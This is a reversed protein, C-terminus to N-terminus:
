LEERENEHHSSVISLNGNRCRLEDIFPKESEGNKLELLYTLEFLSGMNTTKVKNLQCSSTYKNFLDEFISTYDLNEPITIRVTRELQRRGGFGTLTMVIIAAGALILFLAAILIYGTGVALGIAMALFICVIEKASGPLSRFRVLSFAGAVAVGTGINGNVLMIVLQVVAPLLVLSIALSRSTRNKFMCILACGLGLILSALTRIILDYYSLTESSNLLTDLM